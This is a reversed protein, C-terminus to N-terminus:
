RMLESWRSLRVTVPVGVLPPPPPPRASRFRDVLRCGKGEPRMVKPVYLEMEVLELKLERSTTPSSFLEKRSLRSRRSMRPPTCRWRSEYRGPSPLVSSSRSLGDTSAPTGSTREGLWTGVGT